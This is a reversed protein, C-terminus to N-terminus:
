KGAGGMLDVAARSMQAGDHAVGPVVVKQWAFKGNLKQAAVRANEFFANGRAFRFSGQANAGLSRNLSKDNADVDADGLLLIFPRALATRARSEDVRSGITNYPFRFTTDTKGWELQTYWGPNAAIAPSARHRPYFLHLRHVFQGGASHGFLRYGTAKLGYRSVLVDFLHEPVAFAWKEPDAEATSRGLSYDDDKPFYQRKFEPAIVIFKGGNTAKGSADGGNAFPVWHDLYTEGNRQVGHMVFQLPCTQDCGAPVYMWVTVPRTADGKNDVFEFQSKGAPLVAAVVGPQGAALVPMALILCGILAGLKM